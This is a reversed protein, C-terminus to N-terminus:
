LVQPALFTLVLSIMNTIVSGAQFLHIVASQLRMRGVNTAPLDM